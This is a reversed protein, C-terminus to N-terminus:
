SRRGGLRDANHRWARLVFHGTLARLDGAPGLRGDHGGLKSSRLSEPWAVHLDPAAIQPVEHDGSHCMILQDSGIPTADPAGPSGLLAIIRADLINLSVGPDAPLPDPLALNLGAAVLADLACSCARM